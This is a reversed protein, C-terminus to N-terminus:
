KKSKKAAEAQAAQVRLPLSWLDIFGEASSHRFVDEETYTALKTDYQSFPSKRGVTRCSGRLLKVRAAGTVYRNAIDFYADLAERLESFWLGNYVLESYRESLVRGFHALERSQVLESLGKRAEHLVLAGPAEYIERSKIGVLRNELADIRGVGHRGAIENLTEVLKLAGMKKGNVSVPVGQEFGIEVYEAKAPAKAPNTTMTYAAEPAEQWPDEIDGCEISKGWLNADISFPNKKKVDVPINHKKAYDIEEERSKMSWERLPAIVKLDPGLAAAASEIRVQDNGKGTCGHSIYAAKEKRAVKVMEAGILPRGLATALPYRGEYIAGAKLARFCYDELFPKRLDASYAEAAGAEVARKKIEDLNPTEGLDASFTVVRLNKEQVLWHVAISTDLGGSYALVVTDM